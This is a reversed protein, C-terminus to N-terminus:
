RPPMSVLPAGGCHLTAGALGIAIIARLWLPRITPETRPDQGTM